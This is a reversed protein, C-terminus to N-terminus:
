AVCFRKFIGMISARLAPWDRFVEGEGNMSLPGPPSTGTMGRMVFPLRWYVGAYLVQRGASLGM